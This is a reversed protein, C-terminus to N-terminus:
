IPLGTLLSMNISNYTGSRVSSMSNVSLRNRCIHRGQPVGFEQSKSFLIQEREVNQKVFALQQHSFSYDFAAPSHLKSSTNCTLFTTVDFCGIDVVKEVSTTSSAITM